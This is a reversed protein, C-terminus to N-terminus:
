ACQVNREELSNKANEVMVNLVAWAHKQDRVKLDQLSVERPKSTSSHWINWSYNEPSIRYIQEWKRRIEGVSVRWEWAFGNIRDKINLKPDLGIEKKLIHCAEEARDEKSLGSRWDKFESRASRSRERMARKFKKKSM